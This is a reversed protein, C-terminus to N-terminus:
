FIARIDNPPLIIKNLHSGITKTFIVGRISGYSLSAFQALLESPAHFTGNKTLSEATGSELYFFSALECKLVVANNQTFLVSTVCRVTRDEFNYSFQFNNSIEVEANVDSFNEEFTAFQLIELGIFQYLIEKDM